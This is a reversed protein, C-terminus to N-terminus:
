PTPIAPLIELWGSCLDYVLGGITAVILFRYMGAVHGADDAITISVSNGAVALTLATAELSVPDWYSGTMTTTRFDSAEEVGAVIEWIWLLCQWDHGARCAYSGCKRLNDAILMVANSQVTDLPGFDYEPTPIRGEIAVVFGTTDIAM